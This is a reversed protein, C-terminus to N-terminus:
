ISSTKLSLSDSDQIKMIKLVMGTHIELSIMENLSKLLKDVLTSLRSIKVSLKNTKISKKSLIFNVEDKIVGLSLNFWL